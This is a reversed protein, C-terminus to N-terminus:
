ALGTRSRAIMCHVVVVGDVREVRVDDMVARVIGLGRGRDEDVGSVVWQDPDRMVTPIARGGRVEMLWREDDADVCVTLDRGDGYEVMNAVLESVALEFDGVIQAPADLSRLSDHM